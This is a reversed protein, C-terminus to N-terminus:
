RDADRRLGSVGGITMGVCLAIAFGALILLVKGLRNENEM